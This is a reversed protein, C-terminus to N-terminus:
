SVTFPLQVRRTTIRYDISQGEYDIDEVRVRIPPQSRPNDEIAQQINSRQEEIAAENMAPASLDAMHLISLTLSQRIEEAGSVSALHGSETWQTGLDSTLEVDIAM